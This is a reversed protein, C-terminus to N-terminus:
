SLLIKILRTALAYIDDKSGPKREGVILVSVLKNKMDIKYIIRFKNEATRISYLNQLLGHLQKGQLPNQKLNEITQM